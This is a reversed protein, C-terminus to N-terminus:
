KRWDALPASKVLVGSKDVPIMLYWGVLALATAHRLKMMNM